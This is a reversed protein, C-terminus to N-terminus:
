PDGGSKSLLAQFEPGSDSGSFIEEGGEVKGGCEHRVM